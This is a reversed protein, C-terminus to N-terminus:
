SNRDQVNNREKAIEIVQIGFFFRLVLIIWFRRFVRIEPLVEPLPADQVAPCIRIAGLLDFVGTWQGPLPHLGDIRVEPAM